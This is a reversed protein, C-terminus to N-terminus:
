HAKLARNELEDNIIRFKKNTEQNEKVLQGNEKRLRSADVDTKYLDDAINISALVSADVLSLLPNKAKIENIRSDVFEAVDKLYQEDERGVLNYEKGNIKVAVKIM